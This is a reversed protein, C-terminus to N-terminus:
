SDSLQQQLQESVLQELKKSLRKRMKAEIVPLMEDIVEQMILQAETQLRAEIRLERAGAQLNPPPQHNPQQQLLRELQIREGALRALSDHPLFPNPPKSTTAPPATDTLTPPLDSGFSIIDHLLPIHQHSAPQQAGPTPEDLLTRISELDELLRTPDKPEHAM